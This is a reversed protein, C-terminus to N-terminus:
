GDRRCSINFSSLYNFKTKKKRLSNLLKGQSNETGARGGQNLSEAARWCVIKWNHVSYGLRLHFRPQLKLLSRVDKFIFIMCKCIFPVSTEILAFDEGTHKTKRLILVERWLFAPKGFRRKLWAIQWTTFNGFGTLVERGMGFTKVFTHVDKSTM